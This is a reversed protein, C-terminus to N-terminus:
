WRPSGEAAAADFDGFWFDVVDFFQRFLSSSCEFVQDLGVVDVVADDVVVQSKVIVGRMDQTRRIDETGVVILERM